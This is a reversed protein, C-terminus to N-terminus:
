TPTRQLWHERRGQDSLHHRLGELRISSGGAELPRPIALPGEAQQGQENQLVLAM